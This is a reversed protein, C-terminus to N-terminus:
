SGCRGFHERYAPHYRDRSRGLREELVMRVGTSDRPVAKPRNVIEQPLMNSFAERLIPKMLRKSDFRYCLPLNYGMELLKETWFPFVLSINWQAFVRQLIALEDPMSRMLHNRCYAKLGQARHYRLAFGFGGFLADAGEGIWATRYGKSHLTRAVDILATCIDVITGRRTEALIVAQTVNRILSNSMLRIETLPIGLSKAVIRACHHDRDPGRQVAQAYFVFARVNKRLRVATAAIAASDIGGSLLLAARGKQQGVSRFVLRKLRRVTAQRSLTFPARFKKARWLRYHKTSDSVDVRLCFGAKLATIGTPLGDHAAAALKLHSSITLTPKRGIYVSFEGSWRRSVVIQGSNLDWILDCVAAQDIDPRKLEVTVRGRKQSLRTFKDACWFLSCTGECIKHLKNAAGFATQLRQLNTKATNATFLFM